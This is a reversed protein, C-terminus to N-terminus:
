IKAGTKIWDGLTAREANTMHTLNGLPMAHSAVAATYIRQANAHVAFPTDLLVGAPAATFGPQKPHAAHCVVCRKAVIPAIDAYEAPRVTVTVIPPEVIDARVVLGAAVLLLVATVPYGIVYRRKHSVVFFRRVLVGAASICALVIWGRTSGYTMPYHNSIMIFLVPLTLYTNHVSRTKGLQGPRPDPQQGARIQALMRRQGPIIVHAVNAVMITGIISGMHIYAARGGFIHFLGWDAFLLFAGVATWLLAPRGEFVRCILDYVVYGGILTGISIAIAVPPTIDLVSKDILFTSAGAWYVIALMLMGTIWTSYAEWKFWHLNETLPEGRPGTPYKQNHYFGGGHVAWLEGSMGRRVDDPNEPATLSDDLWVFYFSAGIWSIGAILHAWRALLNLWDLVYPSIM